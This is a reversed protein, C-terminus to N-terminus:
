KIETRSESIFLNTSTTTYLREIKKRSELIKRLVNAEPNLSKKKKLDDGPLTKLLEWESLRPPGVTPHSCLDNKFPNLYSIDRWIGPQVIGNPFLITHRPLSSISSPTLWCSTPSTRLPHWSVCASINHQLSWSGREGWLQLTSRRSESVAWWRQSTSVLSYLDPPIPYSGISDATGLNYSM